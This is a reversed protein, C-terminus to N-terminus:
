LCTDSRFLSIHVRVLWGRHSKSAYPNTTRHSDHAGFLCSLTPGPREPKVDREDGVQTM